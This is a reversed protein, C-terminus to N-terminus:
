YERKNGNKVFNWDDDVNKAVRLLYEHLQQKEEASFGQLAVKNSYNEERNLVQYLKKGQETPYMLKIKKNGSDNKRVILKQRELKQVARAATTKDVKLVNALRELIIGPQESIRALYLYQGRNLQLEKFEVNAISDLSRAIVGIPRLIEM